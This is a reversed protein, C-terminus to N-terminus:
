GFPVTECAMNHDFRAVLYIINLFYHACHLKLKKDHKFREIKAMNLVM